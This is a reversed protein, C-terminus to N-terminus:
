VKLAIRFPFTLLHTHLYPMAKSSKIDYDSGTAKITKTPSAIVTRYKTARGTHTKHTLKCFDLSYGKESWSLLCAKFSSTM